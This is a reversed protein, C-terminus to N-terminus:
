IITEAEYVKKTIIKEKVLYVLTKLENYTQSLGAINDLLVNFFVKRPPKEYGERLFYELAEPSNENCYDIPINNEECWKICQDPYKNATFLINCCGIEKLERVLECVDDCHKGEYSRYPFITSDYDIGIVLRDYTRWDDILKIQSNSQKLYYNM